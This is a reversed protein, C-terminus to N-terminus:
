FLVVHPWKFSFIPMLCLQDNMFAKYFSFYFYFLHECEGSKLGHSSILKCVVVCHISHKALFVGSLDGNILFTFTLLFFM